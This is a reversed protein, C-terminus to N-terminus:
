ITIAKQSLESTTVVAAIREEEEEALFKDLHFPRAKCKLCVKGRRKGPETEQSREKAIIRGSKVRKGMSGKLGM